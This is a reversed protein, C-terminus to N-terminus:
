PALELVTYRPSTGAITIVGTYVVGESNSCIGGIGDDNATGAKLIFHFVTTSASAGLRVFLPNQGLNQIHWAIRKTNAALATTDSAISPTNANGTTPYIVQM